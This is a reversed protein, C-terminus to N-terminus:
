MVSRKMIEMPLGRSDTDCLPAYFIVDVKKCNEVFYDTTLYQNSDKLADPGATPVVEPPWMSLTVLCAIYSYPLREHLWRQLPFAILMVYKQTHTHTHTHTPPPAKPIWFAICMRWITVQPWGPEAINKWKIEYVARNEFFARSCM